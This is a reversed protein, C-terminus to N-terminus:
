TREIVNDKIVIIRPRGSASYEYSVTTRHHMRSYQGTQFNEQGVYPCVNEWSSRNDGNEFWRSPLITEVVVVADRDTNDPLGDDNLDFWVQVEMRGDHSPSAPTGNDDVNEHIYVAVVGKPLWYDVTQKAGVGCAYVTNVANALKTAADRADSLNVLKTADDSASNYMPISVLGLVTFLCALVIMFEASFQGRVGASQSKGHSHLILTRVKM